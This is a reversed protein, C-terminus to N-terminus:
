DCEADKAIHPARSSPSASNKGTQSHIFLSNEFSRYLRYLLVYRLPHGDYDFQDTATHVLMGVALGVGISPSLLFGAAFAYAIVADYGHLFVFVRKAGPLHDGAIANRLTWNRVPVEVAYDILHDFDILIGAIIATAVTPLISGTLFGGSLAFPLIILTHHVYHGLISKPNTFAFRSTNM